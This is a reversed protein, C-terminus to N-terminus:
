CRHCDMLEEQRIGLRDLAAFYVNRNIFRKRQEHKAPAAAHSQVSISIAQALQLCAEQWSHAGRKAANVNRMAAALQATTSVVYTTM